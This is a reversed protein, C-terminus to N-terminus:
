RERHYGPGASRFPHWPSPFPLLAGGRKSAISASHAGEAMGVAAGLADAASSPFLGHHCRWIYKDVYGSHSRIVPVMRSLYDNLFGFVLEPDM